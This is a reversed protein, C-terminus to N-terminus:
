KEDVDAPHTSAKLIDQMFKIAEDIRGEAILSNIYGQQASTFGAAIEKLEKESYKKM